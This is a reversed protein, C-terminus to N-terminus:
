ALQDHSTDHSMCICSKGPKYSRGSVSTSLAAVAALLVLLKMAFSSSTALPKAASIFLINGM